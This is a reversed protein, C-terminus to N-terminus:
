RPARVFGNLRRGARTRALKLNRFHRPFKRRAAALAPRMFPRKPIHVRDTRRRLHIGISHLYGRMRPTVRIVAGFEHVRGYWAARTPGVLVSSRYQATRISNRLNKTQAHPPQGPRSPVNVRSAGHGRKGGTKMSMKAEREVDLGCQALPAISAEDVAKMVSRTDMWTKSKFNIKM